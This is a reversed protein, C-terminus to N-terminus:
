NYSASLPVDLHCLCRFMRGLLMMVLRSGVVVGGRMMVVLRRMMVRETLVFLCHLVCSCSLFM